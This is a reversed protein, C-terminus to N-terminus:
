DRFQILQYAEIGMAEALQFLSELSVPKITSPSELASIFSRSLNSAEALEEQTYGALKRYYAINLVLQLYKYENQKSIRKPKSM